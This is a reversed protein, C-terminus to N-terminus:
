KATHFSIKIAANCFAKIFPFASIKQPSRQYFKSSRAITNLNIQQLHRDIPKVHLQTKRSDAPEQCTVEKCTKITLYQYTIHCLKVIFALMIKSKLLPFFLNKGCQYPTLWLRFIATQRYSYMRKSTHPQSQLLKPWTGFKSANLTAQNYSTRVYRSHIYYM